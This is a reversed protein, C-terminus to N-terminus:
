LRENGAAVAPVTQDVVTRNTTLRCGAIVAQGLSLGGDNAPVVQHTLVEFGAATLGAFAASTLLDNQFVGGSLGVVSLEQAEDRALVALRVIVDAVALHFSLALGAADEDSQVGSALAAIVPTPDIVGSEEISFQMARGAGAATSALVELDLAAQAEYSITHRVDLLSAVTDFLRGMGSTWPSHLGTAIQHQVISLELEDSQQSPALGAAEIGCTKLHSLATRWPSRIAAEGGPLRVPMLHARREVSDYGGVLMEGGWLTEDDGWGSGDFLFGVVRDDRALCNEAMLAALHAHHHGVKMVELESRRAIEATRYSPHRDAVLITPEIGHLAGLAAASASLANQAAYSDMDGLHQSVVARTGAAITCTNKLDGGLALLPPVSFPLRLALPAYGRSRRIPSDAGDVVRVVSDDCPVAIPRNHTCFVDALRSLKEIADHDEHEIPDGAINASTMVLVQPVPALRGPVRDFLLHHVPSYPLVIGILPSSQAVLPSVVVQRSRLLVIPRAPSSLTEAEADSVHALSRAADLDRVMVAFPKDARRKRRRLLAVSRDNTADVVLHFGGIGKLAIIRGAALDMQTAHLVEDSSTSQTISPAGAIRSLAPGCDHCAIPQAHYRRDAPDRYERNCRACLEFTAMTTRPRDYPLGTIITWRPGCDTCTIFPHRYRRNNIDRMDALCPDCTATDPPVGVRGPPGPESQNIRFGSGTELAISMVSTAEVRALPPIEAVVRREFEAVVAPPGQVEITVGDGDNGVWGALRLTEALRAVHPRFGVGQVVGVVRVRQRVVAATTTM